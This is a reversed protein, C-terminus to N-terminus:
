LLRAAPQDMMWLLKGNVPQVRQCPYKQQDPGQLVDKLMEAKGEGSILFIVEAAANLVPFTFTIRDSSLKEVWNAAVLHSNETLAPSEPFLSATHGDPGMGLLVLDFRPWERSLPHFFDQLEEEYRRSATQADLEAMVRHVNELPIPVNSLLSESAMRYNSEADTLPVHREDGFFVHINKWPLRRAATAQDGALLSYVAKPTSGGALAVAFRGRAAIAERACRIFEDAAARNLAPADPLICIERPQASNTM